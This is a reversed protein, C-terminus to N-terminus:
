GGMVRKLRVDMKKAFPDVVRVGRWTFGAQLDESLLLSCGTDAAASLILADWFQLKHDTALDLAADFTTESAAVSEFQARWDAIIARCKERPYGYRHMVNYCEGFVQLPVLIQANDFLALLIPDLKETKEEDGNTKWVRAAYVLIDSDLAVRV